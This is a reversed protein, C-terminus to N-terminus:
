LVVAARVVASSLSLGANDILNEASMRAHWAQLPCLVQM